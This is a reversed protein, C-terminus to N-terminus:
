NFDFHSWPIGDIPHLFSLFSKFIISSSTWPLGVWLSPETRNVEENLLKIYLYFFNTWSIQVRYYFSTTYSCTFLIYGTCLKCTYIMVYFTKIFNTLNGWIKRWMELIFHNPWFDRLQINLVQSCSPVVNYFKKTKYSVTTLILYLTKAQFSNKWALRINRLIAPAM